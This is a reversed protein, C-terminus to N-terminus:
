LERGLHEVNINDCFAFQAVFIYITPDAKAIQIDLYNVFNLLDFNPNYMLYENLLNNNVSKIMSIIDDQNNLVLMKYLDKEEIKEKLKLLSNYRDSNFNHVNNIFQHVIEDYNISFKDDIDKFLKFIDDIEYDKKESVYIIQKLSDSNNNNNIHERDEIQEKKAVEKSKEKNDEYDQLKLAFFAKGKKNVNDITKKLAFFVISTMLLLM